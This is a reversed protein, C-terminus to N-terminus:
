PVFPLAEPALARLLEGNYPGVSTTGQCLVHTKGCGTFDNVSV